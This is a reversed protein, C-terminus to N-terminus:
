AEDCRQIEVRGTELIARAHKKLIKLDKLDGLNGSLEEQTLCTDLSTV